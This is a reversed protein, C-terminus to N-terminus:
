AAAPLCAALKVTFQFDRLRDHWLAPQAASRHPRAGCYSTTLQQSRTSPRQARSARATRGPSTSARAQPVGTSAKGSTLRGLDHLVAPGAEEAGFLRVYCGPEGVHDSSRTALRALTVSRKETCRNM